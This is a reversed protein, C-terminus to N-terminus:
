TGSSGGHASASSPPFLVGAARVPAAASDLYGRADGSAPGCPPATNQRCSEGSRCLSEGAVYLFLRVAHMRQLPSLLVSVQTKKWLSSYM